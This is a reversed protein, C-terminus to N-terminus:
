IIRPSKTQFLSWYTQGLLLSMPSIFTCPADNPFLFTCMSHSKCNDTEEKRQKSRERKEGVKWHSVGVVTWVQYLPVERRLALDIPQTLPPVGTTTQAGIGRDRGHSLLTSWDHLYSTPNPRYLSEQWYWWLCNLWDLSVQFFANGQKNVAVWM